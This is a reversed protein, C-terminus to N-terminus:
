PGDASRPPTLRRAGATLEGLATRLVEASRRLEAVSLHERDTHDLRADGPGYAAGPIGWAPIVLNLDSTGSKRWLTPAGGRARIAGTLAMVVPDGRPVEVPEFRALVRM